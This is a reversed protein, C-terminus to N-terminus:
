SDYTVVYLARSAEPFNSRIFIWNGVYTQERKYTHHYYVKANTANRNNIHLSSVVKQNKFICKLVGSCNLQYIFNRYIIQM